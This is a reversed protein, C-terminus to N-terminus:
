GEDAREENVAVEEERRRGDSRGEKWMRAGSQGVWRKKVGRATSWVRKRERWRQGNDGMREEGFLSKRPEAICAAARLIRDGLCGERERGVVQDELVASAFGCRTPAIQFGPDDGAMRRARMRGYHGTRERRAPAGHVVHVAVVLVARRGRWSESAAIHSGVTVRLARQIWEGDCVGSEEGGARSSGIGAGRACGWSGDAGVSAHAAWEGRTCCRSGGSGIAPTASMAVLVVVTKLQIAGEGRPAQVSVGAPEPGSGGNWSALNAVSQPAARGEEAGVWAWHSSVGCCASAAKAPAPARMLSELLAILSVKSM